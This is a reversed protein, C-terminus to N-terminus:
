FIKLGSCFTIIYEFLGSLKGRIGVARHQGPRPRRLAAIRDARYESDPVGRASGSNTPAPANM